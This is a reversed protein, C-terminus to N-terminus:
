FQWSLDSDNENVFLAILYTYAICFIHYYPIYCSYITIGTCCGSACDFVAVFYPFRELIMHGLLSEMFDPQDVIKLMKVLWITSHDSLNRRGFRGWDWNQPAAQHKWSTCSINMKKKSYPCARLGRLYVGYGIRCRCRLCSFFIYM